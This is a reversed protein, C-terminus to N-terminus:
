PLAPQQFVEDDDRRVLRRGNLAVQRVQLVRRPAPFMEALPPIGVAGFLLFLLDHFGHEHHLHLVAGSVRQGGRRQM